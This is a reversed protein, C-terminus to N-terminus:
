GKSSDKKEEKLPFVRGTVWTVLLLAVLCAFVIAMGMVMVLLGTIM